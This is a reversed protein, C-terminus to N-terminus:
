DNTKEGTPNSYPYPETIRKYESESLILKSRNSVALIDETQMIVDYGLMVLLTSNNDALFQIFKDTDDTHITTLANILENSIYRSVPNNDTAKSVYCNHKNDWTLHLLNSQISSLLSRDMIKTSPALKATLVNEDDGRSYTKATFHTPTFYLGLGHGGYGIHYEDDDVLEKLHEFQSLGRYITSSASGHQPSSLKEFASDKVVQPKKDYGRLYLAYRYMYNPALEDEPVYMPNLLTIKGSLINSFENQLSALIEPNVQVYKQMIRNYEDQSIIMNKRNIVQYYTEKSSIPTFLVDYGALMAILSLNESLINVLFQKADTDPLNSIFKSLDAIASNPESPRPNHKTFFNDVLTSSCISRSWSKLKFTLINEDDGAYMRARDKQDSAYTSREMDGFKTRNPNSLLDIHWIINNSGRYVQDGRYKEYDKNSLVTPLSDKELGHLFLSYVKDVKESKPLSGFDSFYFLQFYEDYLDSLKEENISSQHPKKM